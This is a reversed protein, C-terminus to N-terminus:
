GVHRRNIDRAAAQTTHNFQPQLIDSERRWHDDNDLTSIIRVEAVLVGVTFILPERRAKV